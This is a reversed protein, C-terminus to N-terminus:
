LGAKAAAITDPDVIHREDFKKITDEVKLNDIIGSSRLDILRNDNYSLVVPRFIDMENATIILGKEGNTLEVSCGEPLFNICEVLADVVAPDYKDNHKILYKLAGVSTLPEEGKLSMGTLTDFTDAVALVRAGNIIKMHGIPKLHEVADRVIQAQQVNRKVTPRSVISSEIVKVGAQEYKAFLGNLEARDKANDVIEQPMELKGVEHCIASMVCEFQVENRFALKYCLMACIIAVNLSHKYIYDEKSRLNQAFNIKHDLRGYMSIIKDVFINLSKTRKQNVMSLLEEEITFVSVTQFREFERDEETWPPCPEAPELIYIGLLGFNKVSDIGQKTLKSDTDYLLVGKKNFIPKALRMGEKLEETKVFLM